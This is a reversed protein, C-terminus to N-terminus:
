INLVYVFRKYLGRKDREIKRILYGAIELERLTSKLSQDGDTAKDELDKRQISFDAPYMMLYALLGKAKWSLMEDSLFKLRFIVYPNNTDKATRFFTVNSM